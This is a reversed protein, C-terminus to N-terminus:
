FQKEIFIKTSDFMTSGENLPDDDLMTSGENLSSDRMTSDLSFDAATTGLDVDLMIDSRRRVPSLMAIGEDTDPSESGSSSGSVVTSGSISGEDEMISSDKLTDFYDMLGEIAPRYLEMINNGAIGSSGHGLIVVHNGGLGRKLAQRMIKKHNNKRNNELIREVTSRAKRNHPVASAVSSVTGFIMTGVMLSCILKKM